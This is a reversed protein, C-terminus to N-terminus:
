DFNLDPSQTAMSGSRMKSPILFVAAKRKPEFHRAEIRM